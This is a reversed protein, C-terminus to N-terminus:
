MGPGGEIFDIDVVIEREKEGLCEYLVYKCYLVLVKAYFEVIAISCKARYNGM